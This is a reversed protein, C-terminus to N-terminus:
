EKPAARMLANKRATLTALEERVKALRVEAHAQFNDAARKARGHMDDKAEKRERMGVAIQQEEDTLEKIRKNLRDLEERHEHLYARRAASETVSEMQDAASGAFTWQKIGIVAAIPDADATDSPMTTATGRALGLKKAADADLVMGDGRPKMIQGHYKAMRKGDGPEDVLVLKTKGEGAPELGLVINPEMLGRALLVDRGTKEVAARAAPAVGEPGNPHAKLWVPNRFGGITADPTVLVDDCALPLLAAVGNARRVVAILKLDKTGVLTELMTVAEPKNDSITDLLLLVHSAGAKRAASISQAFTKGAGNELAGTVPVIYYAPGATPTTTAPRTTVAAGILLLSMAIINM